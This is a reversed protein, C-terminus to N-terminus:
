DIKYQFVTVPKGLTHATNVTNQTGTSHNVQFAHLENSEEAVRRNRACFTKREVTSQTMEVLSDPNRRKIDDLQDMLMKAQAPTIIGKSARYNFYDRYIELPAPIIIKLKQATPDLKLAEDAALFDVGLAGGSVVGNGGAIIRTVDQRVDREVEPTIRRWSGAIGVWNM